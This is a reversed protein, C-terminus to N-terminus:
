NLYLAERVYTRVYVSMCVCEDQLATVSTHPESLSEGIFITNERFPQMRCQSANQELVRSGLMWEKVAACNVMLMGIKLRIEIKM